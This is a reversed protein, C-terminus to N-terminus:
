LACTSIFLSISTIVKVYGTYDSPPLNAEAYNLFPEKSLFVLVFTVLNLIFSLFQVGVSILHAFYSARNPIVAASVIYAVVSM